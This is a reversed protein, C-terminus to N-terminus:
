ETVLPLRIEQGISLNRIDIDPNAAAIDDPDLGCKEAIGFATDGEEVIYVEGCVGPAGAAGDTGAAPPPASGPLPSLNEPDIIIPEPPQQWPTATPAERPDTLAGPRLRSREGDGGEGGCAAIVAVALAALLLAAFHYRHPSM